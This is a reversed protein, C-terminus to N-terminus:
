YLPSIFSKSYYHHNDCYSSSFFKWQEFSCFDIEPIKKKFICDKSNATVQRHLIDKHHPLSTPMTKSKLMNKTLKQHCILIIYHVFHKLGAATNQSWAHQSKCSFPLTMSSMSPLIYEVKFFFLM